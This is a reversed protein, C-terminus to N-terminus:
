FFTAAMEALVKNSLADALRKPTEEPKPKGSGAVVETALKRRLSDSFSALNLDVAKKLREVLEGKNMELNTELIREDVIFRIVDRVGNLEGKAIRRLAEPIKQWNEAILM